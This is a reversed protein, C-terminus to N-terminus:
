FHFSFVRVSKYAPLNEEGPWQEHEPFNGGNWSKGDEAEDVKRQKNKNIRAGCRRAFSSTQSLSFQFQVVCQEKICGHMEVLPKTREDTVSADFHGFTVQFHKFDIM